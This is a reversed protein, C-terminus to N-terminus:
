PAYCEESQYHLLSWVDHFFRIAVSEITSDVIMECMYNIARKADDITTRLLLRLSFFYAFLCV